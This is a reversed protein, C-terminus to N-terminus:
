KTRKYIKDVFSTFVKRKVVTQDSGAPVEPITEVLKMIRKYASEEYDAYRQRIGLEEYLQKVNAEKKADKQGYNDDLIKRQSPSAIALATNICWSCKNDIIDTGIKGIQEPTGSYDLFDDQIQFYEGLPILIDSALKYPHIVVGNSTYSTPVNCM